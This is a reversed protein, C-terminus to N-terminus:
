LYVPSVFLRSLKELYEALYPFTSREGLDIYYAHLQNDLFSGLEENTYTTHKFSPLKEQKTKKTVHKKPKSEAQPPFLCSIALCAFLTFRFTQM